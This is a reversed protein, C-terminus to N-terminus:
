SSAPWGPPPRNRSERCRPELDPRAIRRHSHTSFSCRLRLNKPRESRASRVPSSGCCVRCCWSRPLSPLLHFGLTEEFFEAVGPKADAADHGLLYHTANAQPDLDVVLTRRGMAASVAALNCVITSKGVGGKRNFVVQRM